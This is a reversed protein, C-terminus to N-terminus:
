TSLEMRVWAPGWLIKRHRRAVCGLREISSFSEKKRKYLGVVFTHEGIEAVETTIHLYVADTLFALRMALSSSEDTKCQCIAGFSFNVLVWLFDILQHNATRSGFIRSFPIRLLM